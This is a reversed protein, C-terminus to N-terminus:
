FLVNYHNQLFKPLILSLCIGFRKCFMSITLNENNAQQLISHM